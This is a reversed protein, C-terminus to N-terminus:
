VLEMAPQFRNSFCNCGNILASSSGCGIGDWGPHNLDNRFTNAASSCSHHVREAPLRRGIGQGAGTDSFGTLRRDTGISNFTPAKFPYESWTQGFPPSVREERMDSRGTPSEMAGKTVCLWESNKARRTTTRTMINTLGKKFIMCIRMWQGSSFGSIRVTHRTRHQPMFVAWITPLRVSLPRRRIGPMTSALHGMALGPVRNTRIPSYRWSMPPVREPFGNTGQFSISTELRKGYVTM